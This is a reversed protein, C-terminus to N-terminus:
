HDYYRSQADNHYKRILLKSVIFLFFGSNYIITHNMEKNYKMYIIILSEALRIKKASM